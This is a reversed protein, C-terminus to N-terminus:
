PGAGQRVRRPNDVGHPVAAFWREHQQHQEQSPFGTDQRPYLFLYYLERGGVEDKHREILRRADAESKVDIREGRDGYTFLVGQRPDIELVKIGLKQNLLHGRERRLDSLKTNAEFQELRLRDVDRKLKRAEQKLDTPEGDAGEGQAIPLLLFMGLVLLLVDILPIFFRTVSREPLQIM